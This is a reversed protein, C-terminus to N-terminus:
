KNLWFEFTIDSKLVERAVNYFLVERLASSIKFSTSLPPGVIAEQAVARSRWGWIIFWWLGEVFGSLIIFSRCFWGLHYVMMFRRCFWGFYYFELLVIGFSLGDSSFISAVKIYQEKCFCELYNVMVLFFISAVMMPWECFVWIIYRGLISFGVLSWWSSEVFCWFIHLETSLLFGQCGCGNCLRLVLLLCGILSVYLKLELVMSECFSGRRLTLVHDFDM